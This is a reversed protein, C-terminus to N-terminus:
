SFRKKVTKNLHQLDITRHQRRFSNKLSGTMNVLKGVEHDLVLDVSFAEPEIMEDLRMEFLYFSFINSILIYGKSSFHMQRM